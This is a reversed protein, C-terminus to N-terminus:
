PRNKPFKKTRVSIGEKERFICTKNPIKPLLEAAVDGALLDRRRKRTRDLLLILHNM